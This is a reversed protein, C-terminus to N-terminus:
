ILILIESYVFINKRCPIILIVKSNSKNVKERYNLSDWLKQHPSLEERERERKIKGLSLTIFYVLLQRTVQRLRGM